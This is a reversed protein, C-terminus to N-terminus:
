INMYLFTRQSSASCAQDNRNSSLLSQGHSRGYSVLAPGVKNRFGAYGSKMKGRLEPKVDTRLEGWFKGHGAPNLELKATSYGGIDADSGVVYQAIDAPTRFGFLEKTGSDHYVPNM